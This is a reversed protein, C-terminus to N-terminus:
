TSQHQGHVRFTGCIAVPKGNRALWLEYYEPEPQEPLGSVQVRLSWNGVDDRQGLQITALAAPAAVTGHMPIARQM